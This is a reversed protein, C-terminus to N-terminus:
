PHTGIDEIHIFDKILPAPIRAGDYINIHESRCKSIKQKLSDISQVDFLKFIKECFKKSKLKQWISHEIDTYIYCKPYWLFNDINLELGNFIQFLFLDTDAITRKTYIPSIERKTCVLYGIPTFFDRLNSVSRKISNELDYGGFYFAGYSSEYTKESLIYRRLFYTHFLIARIDSFRENHLLYTMSCLFLEWIHLKFIDLSSNDCSNTQPEFFRVDSLNNYLNEFTDALFEGLVFKSSESIIKLFKLFYDRNEKMAQFDDLFKNADFHEKRYFGRLSDLYLTIFSNAVIENISVFHNVELKLKRLENKM